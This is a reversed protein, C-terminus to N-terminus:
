EIGLDRPGFAFPLLESIAHTVVEEGQAGACHVAIDHGGLQAAESIVQRCRGCPAVPSTGTPIGDILAGGIVAIARVDRIHGQANASALAVTEACLTLGYSANEFNCGTIISGDALRLAAGVGFHSYPAHAYRAANRAATILQKMDDNM